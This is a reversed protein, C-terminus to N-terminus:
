QVFTCVVGYKVAKRLIYSILFSVELLTEEKSTFNYYEAKDINVHKVVIMQKLM